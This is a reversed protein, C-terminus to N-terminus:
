RRDVFLVPKRSMPPFRMANVEEISCFRFNPAVRLKARFHDKLEKAFAPSTDSGAIHIVIEDTGLKNLSVEVVFGQIQTYQELLNYIAPPYLTTGKYKIMQQKRGIVAGLRPTTRGCSCAAGHYTCLDGTRFRLLPMAQVGLTTVVVEGVEGEGVPQDDADLVELIILEPHAHGGAGASCETFATSMETSAYTSYLEIDWLEKIRLGLNNLGGEANRLPEGICLASRISSNRYDIGNKEAYEIMKLIFSPVAVLVTPAIRRITDWQLEPLGSGVRVVGAGLLRAGLFYALGAMFRRDLTTTLLIIDDATIGACAMSIAENYALRDLDADTLAFTVPDGLTGSTTVYDVVERPSVCLFDAGYRQLDDKTTFPLRSLDDLTKITKIDISYAEFLRRYYPSKEALYELLEMLRQAQYARIESEARTEIIPHM